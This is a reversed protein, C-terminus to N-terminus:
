GAGGRGGSGRRRACKLFAVDFAAAADLRGDEVRVLGVYGGGTTGMFITGPTFFPPVLGAPVSVGAGIRSDVEPPTENGALGSAIVAVRASVSEAGLDVECADPGCEGLKAAVGDRFQVGAKRAATVLANDFAERSLSVGGPLRVRAARGGATLRVDRLPVANGLIHALGLRRLLNVAAANICCGCVKPRPFHAKDLLLVSCGRRALERAAVAGAPGAGIVVADFTM